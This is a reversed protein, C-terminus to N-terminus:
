HIWEDDRGNQGGQPTSKGGEIVEFRRLEREISAAKKKLERRRAGPGLVQWWGVIGVFAGAPEASQLTAGAGFLLVLVAVVGTMGLIFRGNVPIAFMLYVTQNPMSLGFVTPLYIFALTTWGMLPGTDALVLDLGFPLLTGGIVGAILADRLRRPDVHEWVAPLLFYVLLMGMLVSFVSPGQVLFRTLPQWPAFGNGIPLWALVYPDFGANYSALEVVYLAFMGILLNRMWPYLTPFRFEPGGDM